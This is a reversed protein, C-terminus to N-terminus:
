QPGTTYGGQVKADAWLGKTADRSIALGDWSAELEADTIEGNQHREIQEAAWRALAAFSAVTAVSVTM